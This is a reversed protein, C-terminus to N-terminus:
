DNSYNKYVLYFSKNIKSLNYLDKQIIYKSIIFNKYYIKNYIKVPQINTKIFFFILSILEFTFLM